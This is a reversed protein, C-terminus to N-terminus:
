REMNQKMGFLAPNKMFLTNQMPLYSYARPLEFWKITSFGKNNTKYQQNNKGGKMENWTNKDKNNDCAIFSNLESLFHVM